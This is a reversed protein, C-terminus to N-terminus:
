LMCMNVAYTQFLATIVKVCICCFYFVLLSEFMIVFIFVIVCCTVFINLTFCIVFVPRFVSATTPLYHMFLQSAHLLHIFSLTMCM